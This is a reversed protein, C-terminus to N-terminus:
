LGMQEERKWLCQVVKALENFATFVNQLFVWYFSLIM